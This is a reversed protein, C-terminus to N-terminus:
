LQEWRQLINKLGYRVVPDLQYDEISIGSRFPLQLTNSDTSQVAGWRVADLFADLRYPPDFGKPDRLLAADHTHANPELEWLVQLEKGLADEEISTMGVLHQPGGTLSSLPDTPLTSRDVETVLFQRRRVDVLQGPEPIAGSTM